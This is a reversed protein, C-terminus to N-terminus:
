GGCQDFGGARTGRKPPAGGKTAGGGGWGVGPASFCKEGKAAAGRGGGAGPRRFGKRRRLFGGGRGGGGRGGGCGGVPRHDCRGRRGGRPRVRAQNSRDDGACA